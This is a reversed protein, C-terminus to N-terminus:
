PARGFARKGARTMLYKIQVIPLLAVGNIILVVAMISFTSAAQGFGGYTGALFAASALIRAIVIVTSLLVGSGAVVALWWGARRGAFTGAALALTLIPFTWLHFAATPLRNPIVAVLVLAQVLAFVVGLGGYIWRRVDPRPTGAAPWQRDAWRALGLMGGFMLALSLIATATSGTAHAFVRVAVGALALAAGAALEGM